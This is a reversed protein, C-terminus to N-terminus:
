GNQCLSKNRDQYNRSIAMVAKFFDEMCPKLDEELGATHKQLVEAERGPDLTPMGHQQKYEGIKAVTQMRRVFCDELTKDIADLEARYDELTM